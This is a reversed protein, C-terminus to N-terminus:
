YDKQVGEFFLFWRDVLMTNIRCFVIFVQKRHPHSKRIILCKRVNEGWVTLAWLQSQKNHILQYTFCNGNDVLLCIKELHSMRGNM